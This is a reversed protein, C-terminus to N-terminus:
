SRGGAEPRPVLVACEKKKSALEKELLLQLAAVQLQMSLREQVLREFTEAGVICYAAKCYASGYEPVPVVDPLQVGEPLPNFEVARAPVTIAWLAFALVLAVLLEGLRLAAWAAREAEHLITLLRM